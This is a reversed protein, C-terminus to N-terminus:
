KNNLRNVLSLTLHVTENNPNIPHRSFFESKSNATKPIVAKDTSFPDNLAKLYEERKDPELSSLVAYCKIMFADWEYEGSDRITILTKFTFQFAPATLQRLISELSLSIKLKNEKEKEAGVWFKLYAALLKESIDTLDTRLSDDVEITELLAKIKEITSTIESNSLDIAANNKPLLNTLLARLENVQFAKSSIPKFPNPSDLPSMESPPMSSQIENEAREEKLSRKLRKREVNNQKIQEELRDLRKEIPIPPVLKKLRDVQKLFVLYSPCRMKDSGACEIALSLAKDFNELQLQFPPSLVQDLDLDLNMRTEIQESIFRAYALMAQVVVKQQRHLHHNWGEAFKFQTTNFFSEVWSLSQINKRALRCETFLTESLHCLHQWKDNESFTFLSTFDEKPNPLYRLHVLLGFQDALFKKREKERDFLTDMIGDNNISDVMSKPVSLLQNGNKIIAHENDAQNWKLYALQQIQSHNGWKAICAQFYQLTNRDLDHRSQSPLRYNEELLHLHKLKSAFHMTVDDFTIRNSSSAAKLRILMSEAIVEKEKKIEARLTHLYSQIYARTKQSLKSKYYRREINLMDLYNEFLPIAREILAILSASTYIAYKQQKEWQSQLSKLLQIDRKQNKDKRALIVNTLKVWTEPDNLTKHQEKYWNLMTVKSVDLRYHNTLDRFKVTDLQSASEVMEQRYAAVSKGSSGVHNVLEESYSIAKKLSRIAASSLSQLKALIAKEKKNALETLQTIDIVPLLM